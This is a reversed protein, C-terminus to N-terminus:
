SEQGRFLVEQPSVDNRGAGTHFKEMDAFIFYKSGVRKKLGTCIPPIKSSLANFHSFTPSKKQFEVIANSNTNPGEPRTFECGLV